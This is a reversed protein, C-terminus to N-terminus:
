VNAGNSEAVALLKRSENVKLTEHPNLAPPTDDLDATPHTHRPESVDVVVVGAHKQGARNETAYYACSDLFAPGDQSFAGEGQFQGVLELNCNYGRESKGSSREDPTTQGQLGTETRDMRGCTAQPVPATSPVPQAIARQGVSTEYSATTSAGLLLAPLAVAAIAFAKVVEQRNM